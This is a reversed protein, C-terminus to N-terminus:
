NEGRECKNVTIIKQKEEIDTIGNKTTKTRNSAAELGPISETIISNPDNKKKLEAIERKMENQQKLM